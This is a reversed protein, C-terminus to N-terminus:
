DAVTYDSSRVSGANNTSSNTGIYDAEGIACTNNSSRVSGDNNTSHDTGIYDASRIASPDNPGVHTVNDTRSNSVSLVCWM